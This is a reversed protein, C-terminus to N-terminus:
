LHFEGNENVHEPCVKRAAFIHSPTVSVSYSRMIIKHAISTDKKEIHSIIKNLLYGTVRYKDNFCMYVYISTNM